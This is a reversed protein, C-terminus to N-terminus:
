FLAQNWFRPGPPYGTRSIVVDMKLRGVGFDRDFWAVWVVMPLIERSSIHTHQPPPIDWSVCCRGDVSMAGVVVMCWVCGSHDGLSATVHFHPKLYKQVPDPSYRSSKGSRSPSERVPLSGTLGPPNVGIPIASHRVNDLPCRSTCDCPMALEFDHLM